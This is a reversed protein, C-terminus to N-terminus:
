FLGHIGMQEKRGRQYAARLIDNYKKNPPRIHLNCLGLELLKENIFTNDDIFFAYALTNFDEDQRQYDYELRISKGTLLYEIEEFIKKEIPIDENSKTQRKVAGHEDRETKDKQIHVPLGKVGILKIIKGSECEFSNASLVRKIVAQEEEKNKNFFFELNTEAKTEDTLLCVTM